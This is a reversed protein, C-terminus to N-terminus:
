YSYNSYRLFIRTLPGTYSVMFHEYFNIIKVTIRFILILADSSEVKNKLTEEPPTYLLPDVVSWAGLVLLAGNEPDIAVPALVAAELLAHCCSHAPVTLISGVM